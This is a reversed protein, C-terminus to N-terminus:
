NKSLILNLESIKDQSCQPTDKLPFDLGMTEYKELCLKKFPLLEVKEIVSYKDTIEKLKEINEKDDTIDPVVVHRIWVAIGKEQLKDLFKLTNNLSGKIHKKYMDESTMKIDLLVLDTYELLQEVASNYICGSTDIATHLGEEKCLKLLETAFEAQLLVEGGSLTVGGNRLYSKLKKIKDFMEQPTYETGTGVQWTDPNHCYACRLPCGQFFVVCRLGPGDVTGMSQFSHIFGIM